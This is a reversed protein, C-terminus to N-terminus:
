SDEQRERCLLWLIFGHMYPGVKGDIMKTSFCFYLYVLFVNCTLNAKLLVIKLPLMVIDRILTEYIRIKEGSFAFKWQQLVHSKILIYKIFKTQQYYCLKLARLLVNKGWLFTIPENTKIAELIARRFAIKM